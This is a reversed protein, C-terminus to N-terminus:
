RNSPIHIIDPHVITAVKMVSNDIVYLKYIIYIQLIIVLVLAIANTDRTIKIM